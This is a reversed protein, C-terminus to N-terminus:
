GTPRCVGRQSTEVFDIFCQLHDSAPLESRLQQTAKDVTKGSLFFIRYIKNIEEIQASTFGKRELGVYNLGQVKARNGVATVYPTVDQTIMSQGGTMAHEGIRCFQHVGTMGGLTAHNKIVVHGGLTTGNAMIINSGIICDHAIHCYAMIWNQDGIKTVWGGAESGRNITVYERILNGQGIELRSNEGHFKMDQPELGVAAFPFIRNGQGMQTPGEIVAHHGIECADGIVVEPGIVAYAGIKVGKGIQAREDILATPHIM